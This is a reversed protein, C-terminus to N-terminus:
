NTTTKGTCIDCLDDSCTVAHGCGKCRFEVVAAGCQCSKEIDTDACMKRVTKKCFPCDWVLQSLGGIDSKSLPVEREEYYDGGRAERVDAVYDMCAYASREAIYRAIYKEEPNVRTRKYVHIRTPVADATTVADLGRLIRCSPGVAEGHLAPYSRTKSLSRSM